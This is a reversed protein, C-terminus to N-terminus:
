LKATNVVENLRRSFQTVFTENNWLPNGMDFLIAHTIEHWFTESVEETRFSRGTLNSKSGVLVEKTHHDVSGMRGSRRMKDVVTVNFTKDSITFKKPILM